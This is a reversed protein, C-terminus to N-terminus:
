NKKKEHKMREEEAEFVVAVVVVVFGCFSVSLIKGIVVSVLGGWIEYFAKVFTYPITSSLYICLGCSRLCVYSSGKVQHSRLKEENENFITTNNQKGKIYHEM